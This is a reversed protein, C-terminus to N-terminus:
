PEEGDVRWEGRHRTHGGAEPDVVALELRQGVARAGVEDEVPSPRGPDRVEERDRLHAGSASRGPDEPDVAQRAAVLVAARRAKGRGVLRTLARDAGPAVVEDEERRLGAG